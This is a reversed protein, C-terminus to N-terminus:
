RVQLLDEFLVHDQDHLTGAAGVDASWVDSQCWREIRLRRSSLFTRLIPFLCLDSAHGSLELRQLLVQGRTRRALEVRSVPHAGSNCFDGM